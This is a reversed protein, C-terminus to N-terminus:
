GQEECEARYIPGEIAKLLGGPAHNRIGNILANDITSVVLIISLVM